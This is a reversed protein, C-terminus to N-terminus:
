KPRIKPLTPLRWAKGPSRPRCSSPTSMWIPPTPDSSTTSPLLPFSVGKLDALDLKRAEVQVLLDTVPALFKTQQNKFEEIRMDCKNIQLELDLNSLAIEEHNHLLQKCAHCHDDKQVQAQLAKKEAEVEAAYEGLAAYQSNLNDAQLKLSEIDTETKAVEAQLSEVGEDWVVEPYGANLKELALFVKRQAVIDVVGDLQAQLSKITSTDVSVAKAVAAIHQAKSDDLLRQVKGLNNQMQDYVSRSNKAQDYAQSTSEYAPKLTKAIVQELKAIEVPAQKIVAEFASTDVKDLTLTDLREQAEELRQRASVDSGLVLKAQMKELLTDFFDFESLQEVLESAAKPGQELAGRLSNQNALMLNAALKADAGIMKSAFATVENQGTVFVQGDKIVEAGGKSRAFTYVEGGFEVDLTARLSNEPKGWQVTESFTDRLAKAGGFAYAIAEALTSKGGENPSRVTNLGPTFDVTLDTHKRFNMLKLTKIM